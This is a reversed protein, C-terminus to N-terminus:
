KRGNLYDLYEEKTMDPEFKEKIIKAKEAGRCLLECATCALIKAPLIYASNENCVEFEKSHLDGTFGGASPQIVPIIRSLDGMDTSGTIEKGYVLAEAGALEKTVNEFVASLDENEKIPLYGPIDRIDYEAGIIRCAGSVAREVADNGKNIAEMSAGRVYTELIVEDPVSNVNDGGQTIIPHIRIKEEERFTERNAHIGLIALAAANLANVGEFPTSGHATKGKFVIRKSVFGLNHGRVYIKREPESGKAHVMMAMDADNFANEYLLQQKGAFFRIKGQKKLERRFDLDTFEEAPVAFFTINGDLAKMANSEALGMLAGLMMAIQVNHGCAHSVNENNATKSGKCKIGDMEGIICINAYNNRGYLTGKVGTVAFGSQVDDCYKEFFSKVYASTLFEKYGLEPESAIHEAAAKITGAADSIKECINRKLEETKM